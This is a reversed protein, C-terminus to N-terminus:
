HGTLWGLNHATIHKNEVYSTIFYITMLKILQELYVQIWSSIAFHACM